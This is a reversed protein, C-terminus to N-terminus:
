HGVRWNTIFERDTPRWAFRVQSELNGDMRQTEEM